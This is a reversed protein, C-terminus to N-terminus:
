RTVRAAELLPVRLPAGHESRRPREPGRRDQRQHDFERQMMMANTVAHVVVIGMTGDPPTDGFVAALANVAQSTDTCIGDMKAMMARAQEYKGTSLLNEFNARTM